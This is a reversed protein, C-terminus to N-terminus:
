PHHEFCVSLEMLAGEEEEERYGFGAVTIAAWDMDRCTAALENM